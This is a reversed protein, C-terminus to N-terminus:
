HEKKIDSFSFTVMITIGKKETLSFQLVFYTICGEHQGHVTTGWCIEVHFSIKSDSLSSMVRKHLKCAAKYIYCELLM